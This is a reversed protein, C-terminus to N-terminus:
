RVVRREIRRVWHPLHSWEADLAAADAAEAPSASRARLKEVLVAVIGVWVAAAVAAGLILLLKRPFVPRSAPEGHDLVSLVPTNKQEEIRAQELQQTLLAFLTEQIKLDRMLRMYELAMDPVSKFRPFVGGSEDRSALRPNDGTLDAYQRRLAELEDSKQQVEQSAPLARQRLLELEVQTALIRGQVEAALGLAGETQADIQIARHQAQFDRMAEEAKQLDANCRAIQKEVFTRTQGARGSNVEQIIQDLHQVYANVVDAARKPDSDQYGVLFLGDDTYKLSTRGRLIGLADDDNDTKFVTRLSYEDLILRGMKRSSVISAYLTPLFPSKVGGPIPIQYQELLASLGGFSPEDNPPLISAESYYRPTVLFAYAAAVVAALLAFGVLPRRWKLLIRFLDLM